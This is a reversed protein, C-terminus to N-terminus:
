KIYDKIEDYYVTILENYIKDWNPVKCKKWKKELDILNLYIINLASEKNPLAGRGYFGRQIKSNVSEVINNTYVYKRINTPLDFLPIIQDFYKTAHKIITKKDKHNEKFEEWCLNAIEKTPATYIKKFDKLVIKSYTKTSVKKLNRVIHVVCIQHFVGNFAEKSADTIGTVGDSVLFLIKEVGRDKLDEFVETWYTKSESIDKDYLSDIKNKYEDENGLYLGIIEKHGDLKTGVAVYVPIKHSVLSKNDRITIYLCDINVCFYCPDLKRNRWAMVQDAVRQTVESIYGTSIDINFISVLLDKIDNVSNNKSYLLIINDNLDDLIKTRKPILISDFDKEFRLRPRNFNIVGYSTTITINKGVGNKKNPINNLKCYDIYTDLEIELLTRVVNNDFDFVLNSLTYNESFDQDTCLKDFIGKQYSSMNDYLNQITKNSKDALKTNVSDIYDDMGCVGTKYLINYMM